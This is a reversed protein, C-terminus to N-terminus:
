ASPTDNLELALERPLRYDEAPPGTEAPARSSLTAQASAHERLPSASKSGDDGAQNDHAAMLNGKRSGILDRWTHHLFDDRADPTDEGIIRTWERKSARDAIDNAAAM